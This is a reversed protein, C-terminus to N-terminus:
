WVVYGPFVAQEVKNGVEWPHCWSTEVGGACRLSTKGPTCPSRWGTEPSPHRICASTTTLEHAKPHDLSIYHTHPFNPAYTRQTMGCPHLNMHIHPMVLIPVHKEIHQLLIFTEIAFAVGAFEADSTDNDPLTIPQTITQRASQLYLIQLLLPTSEGDASSNNHDACLCLLLDKFIEDSVQEQMM